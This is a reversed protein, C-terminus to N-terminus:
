VHAALWAAVDAFVQDREPENFVEHYLGVYLRKTKDVTPLLDYLLDLSDPHGLVDESGHLALAPITIQRAAARASTMLRLLESGTRAYTKDHFNLPDTDYAERVAPDKSVMGGELAMLRLKPAVAGLLRALLKQYAPFTGGPILVAGSTILGAMEAQHQATFCLALMAGMSHGLLFLKRGPNAARITQFYAYLDDLLLDVSGVYGRLGGSQGHGRQDLTYAADGQGVLFEAVHAYRASHEGIGHVILIAARPEGEPLWAQTFLPTGDATSFTGTTHRM